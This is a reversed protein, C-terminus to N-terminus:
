EVDDVDVQQRAAQASADTAAAAEVAGARGDTDVSGSAARAAGAAAAAAAGREPNQSDDIDEVPGDDIEMVIKGNKGEYNEITKDVKLLLSGLDEFGLKECLRIPTEGDANRVSSDAGAALLLPVAKIGRALVADHLPTSGSDRARANIDAGAELLVRMVDVHGNASAMHLATRGSAIDVQHLLKKAKGEDSDLMEKITALVDPADANNTDNYRCCELFYNVWADEHMADMFMAQGGDSVPTVAEAEAASAAAAAAAAAVVPQQESSM